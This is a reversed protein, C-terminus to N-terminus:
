PEGFVRCFLDRQLEYFENIPGFQRALWSLPLYVTNILLDLTNPQGFREALWLVPAPSLMYGMLLASIALTRRKWTWPAFWRAQPPPPNTASTQPQM